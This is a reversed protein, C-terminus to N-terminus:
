EKNKKTQMTELITITILKNQLSPVHLFASYHLQGYVELFEISRLLSVEVSIGM